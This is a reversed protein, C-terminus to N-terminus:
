TAAPGVHQDLHVFDCAGDDAMTMHCHYYTTSAQRVLKAEDDDAGTDVGGDNGRACLRPDQQKDVSCVSHYCANCMDQM